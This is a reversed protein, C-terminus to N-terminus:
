RDIFPLIQEGILKLGTQADLGHPTGFEVRTAGAVRLSAVQRLIDDPTGAFAFRELMEDSIDHPRIQESTDLTVDLPAVIPLYLALEQRARARAAARDRDVVTVAGVCVGVHRPLWNRMQRAMAPNASGGIKVEDVLHGLARATQQGWTGLVVPVNARLPVYRLTAGPEISFVQGTFGDTRQALLYRVMEITERLRTIPRRVEIGLADLWSGRVLGLYARGATALDLVATQGAIEVPHLTYPNLAAPGLRAQRVHRALELLPGLAPQFFLDNYVSVIDFAYQNALEGLAAYEAPSKNTQFAVSVEFRTV